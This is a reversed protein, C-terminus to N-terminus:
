ALPPIAQTHGQHVVEGSLQLLMKAPFLHWPLESEVATKLEGFARIDGVIYEPAARSTETM